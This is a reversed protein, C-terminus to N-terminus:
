QIVVQKSASAKYSSNEFSVTLDWTGAGLEPTPVDFGSCTTASSLAQVPVEKSYTKGDLRKMSLNCTGQTTVLQILTRIQFVEGNQNAATIEAAVNAKNNESGPAPIPTPDSGNTTSGDNNVTQDKASKGAEKQEKTPEDLNTAGDKKSENAFPGWKLAAAAGVSIGTLLIIVGAIM